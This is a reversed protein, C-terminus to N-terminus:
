VLVGSSVWSSGIEVNGDGLSTRAAETQVSVVPPRSLWYLLSVVTFEDVKTEIGEGNVSSDLEETGGLGSAETFALGGGKGMGLCLENIHVSLILSYGSLLTFIPAATLVPSCATPFVWRFGLIMRLWVSGPVLGSWSGM